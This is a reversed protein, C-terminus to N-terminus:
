QSDVDLAPGQENGIELTYILELEEESVCDDSFHSTSGSIATTAYVAEGAKGQGHVNLIEYLRSVNSQRVFASNKTLSDAEQM